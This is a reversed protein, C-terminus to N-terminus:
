FNALFEYFELDFHLHDFTYTSAYDFFWDYDERYHNSYGVHRPVHIENSNPKMIDIKHQTFLEAHKSVFLSKGLRFNFYIGYPTNWRYDFRNKEVISANLCEVTSQHRSIRDVSRKNLENLVFNLNKSSNHKYVIPKYPNSNFKIDFLDNLFQRDFSEMFLFHEFLFSAANPGYTSVLESAYDYINYKAIKRKNEACKFSDYREYDDTKFKRPFIFEDFDYNTMFEYEYKFNMLCDNLCVIEHSNVVKENKADFFVKVYSRCNDLLYNRVTSSRNQELL